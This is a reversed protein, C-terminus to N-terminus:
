ASKAVWDMVDSKFDPNYLWGLEFSQKTLGSDRGVVADTSPLRRQDIQKNLELVKDVRGQRYTQWFRLAEAVDGIRDRQGLILALIYVDEFAQNIGQGASPPIAHAADGLIVVNGTASTWRDLRPVVFFPWKNVKDPEIRSVARRVFEPFHENGSQLFTIASQKDAVFARDWGPQREAPALRMQKGILVESGDVQQPAIVFAGQPSVITVPIHYGEPLQLQATPVSATIGAMGVFTTELDPYLHRRVTSHIGDAGVLLLTQISRGDTLAFSVGEATDTEVHSFKAGYEIAVGAAALAAVLEDILVYRYIRLGQYGYKEVGGFDQTETLNGDLDRYELSDFNYGKSKVMDYLGLADLVKLANPSLMVAGGINLPAPRSEYVTVPISQQHLALALTLGALGAGIVSVNDITSPLGRGVPAHYASISQFGKTLDFGEDDPEAANPEEAAQQAPLQPRTPSSPPSKSMPPPSSSQPPMPGRTKSPSEYPAMPKLPTSGIDAYRWFPAPSSTPMHQSPRQATSPPALRPHIRPPAPTVFASNDDQYSSTLTPSQPQYGAFSSEVDLTKRQRPLPSGDATLTANLGSRDSRNPTSQSMRLSSRPVPSTLPSARRKRGTPTDRGAMDKPGQTIYNLQNPSSPASSGRHGGRGVKYANRIMEERLEPVIQWKMGKGPEDTSRAVKDFSKNLSLNHRISNQWGAAQQHRYYSYTDMIYTYIGNLNLKEDQANMIAQTIMQAYSYQPKIHQNDDLSLDVGSAGIIVAPTSVAPSKFDIRRTSPPTGPRKYDAPAPAINTQRRSARADVPLGCRQLFTPHVHLPSIESPLVFMMEVNGIEIVEGSTLPHSVRPKLPQGDVKAGNRGKVQLLWKEDKSDFVIAAHARSIMKSPGLDIHVHEHDDEDEEPAPTGELARGINVALKTIYFTWDQAAVKAYAKVGDGNAEHISNAHDKSAKVAQSKLQQTVQSVIQDDDTPPAQDNDINSSRRDSEPSAIKKRRKAPRTPSSSPEMEADTSSITKTDRGLRLDRRGRQARKASPPM